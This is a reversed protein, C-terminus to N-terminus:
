RKNRIISLILSLVSIAAAAISLILPLNSDSEDDSAQDTVPTTQGHGDDSGEASAPTVTTVSAPKDAGEGGVWEVVTGDSYTQYAKWVLQAADEAVKGSVRFETFETESLGVDSSWTISIIKNDADKELEHKWGEKPEVRSVNIEAPVKVQVKVTNVGKEESPVRVAMVQYTGAAVQPPQVTVHASAMGAFVLLSLLVMILASANRFTRQKFRFMM